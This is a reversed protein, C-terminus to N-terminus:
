QYHPPKPNTARVRELEMTGVTDSIKGTEKQLRSILRAQEIVVQNLEEYQRELHALHSEIKELEALSLTLPKDVEGSINLRWEGANLASPEFMHNRVFFHPVPTIWNSMFEPPMELDLFRFSRLIMGQKGPVIPASPDTAWSLLPQITGAAALTLATDKLFDRRSIM